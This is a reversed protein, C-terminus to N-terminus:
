AKLAAILADLKAELADLRAETGVLPAANSGVGDVGVLNATVGIAAIGTPKLARLLDNGNLKQIGQLVTDTAAVAGAGSVYGALLSLANAASIQDGLLIDGGDAASIQGKRMFPLTNQAENLIAKQKVSLAM